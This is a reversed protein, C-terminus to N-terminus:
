MKLDSLQLIVFEVKILPQLLELKILGSSENRLIRVKSGRDVM